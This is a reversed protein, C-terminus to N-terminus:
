GQVQILTPETWPKDTIFYGIRNVIHMGSVIYTHDDDGDVWTWVRNDPEKSVIYLDYGYTEFLTSNWGHDNFPNVLPIFQEEWQEETITTTEM